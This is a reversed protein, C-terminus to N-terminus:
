ETVARVRRGRLNVQKQNIKKKKKKRALLFPLFQADPNQAQKGDKSTVGAEADLDIGLAKDREKRRDLIRKRLEKARPHNNEVDDVGWEMAEIASPPVVEEPPGEGEKNPAPPLPDEQSMDSLSPQLPVASLAVASHTHASTQLYPRGASM